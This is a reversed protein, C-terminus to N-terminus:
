RVEDVVQKVVPDSEKMRDVMRIINQTSIHSNIRKTRYTEHLATIQMNYANNPPKVIFSDPDFV